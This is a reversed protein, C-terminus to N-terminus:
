DTKERKFVSAGISILFQRFYKLLTISSASTLGRSFLSGVNEDHEDEDADDETGGCEGANWDDLGRLLFPPPEPLWRRLRDRPSDKDGSWDHLSAVDEVNDGFVSHRCCKSDNVNLLLGSEFTDCAIM